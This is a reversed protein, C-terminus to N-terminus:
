GFLGRSNGQATSGLLRNRNSAYDKLSMNAIDEPTFQRNETNTDLPGAAPITTRTGVMDRRASTMAQQASELIRSSRDRLSTISSEIEEPTSGDVMDLLEPMINDREAEVRQTKWAQLEQYHREQDLLAIATERERRENELRESWEQERKDLLERVSMEEEARRNADAQAEAQQRAAEAEREDKERRLTAVEDKLNEIQPYLKSKEQERAKSIDDASFAEFKPPPNTTTTAITPLTTATGQMSNINLNASTSDTGEAAGGTFNSADIGTTM